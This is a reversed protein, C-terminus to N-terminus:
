SAAASARAARTLPRVMMYDPMGPTAEISWGFLESYFQKLRSPDNAPIEFHVVPHKM